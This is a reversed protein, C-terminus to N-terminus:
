QGELLACQIHSALHMGEVKEPCVPQLHGIGSHLSPMGGRVNGRHTSAFDFDLIRRCLPWQGANSDSVAARSSKSATPDRTPRSTRGGLVLRSLTLNVNLSNGGPWHKRARSM